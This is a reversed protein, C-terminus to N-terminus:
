FKRLRLEPQFNSLTIKSSKTLGNRVQLFVDVPLEM